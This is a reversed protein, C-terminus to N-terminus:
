EVKAQKKQKQRKDVDQNVEFAWIIFTHFQDIAMM